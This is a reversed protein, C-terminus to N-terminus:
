VSVKMGNAIAPRAGVREAWGLLNPFKGAKEIIAKRQAVIPYLALDALSFEDALYERDKLRGEVTALFNLLRKEFFEANAPSKEPAANALQFM